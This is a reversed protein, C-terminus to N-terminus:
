LKLGKPIVKIQLFLFLGLPIPWAYQSTTYHCFKFLKGLVKSGVRSQAPASGHHHHWTRATVNSIIKKKSCWEYTESSWSILNILWRVWPLLNIIFLTVIISFFILVTKVKSCVQWTEKQPPPPCHILVRGCHHSDNLKLINGMFGLRKEMSSMKWFVKMLIWEICSIKAFQFM